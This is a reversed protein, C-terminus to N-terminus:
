ELKRVKITQYVTHWPDIFAFLKDLYKEVITINVDDISTDYVEM